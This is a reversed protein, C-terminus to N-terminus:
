VKRWPREYAGSVANGVHQGLMNILGFHPFRVNFFHDVIMAGFDFIIPAPFPEGKPLQVVPRKYSTMQDAENDPDLDLSWSYERRRTVVLEGLLLAIDMMLSYVIEHGTRSSALWIESKTLKPDYIRPFEQKTWEHLAHLPTEFDGDRLAVAVEANFGSFFRPLDSLRAECHTLLYELNAHAQEL